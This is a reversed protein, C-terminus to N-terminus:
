NNRLSMIDFDDEMLTKNILIGDFSYLYLDKDIYFYFGQKNYLSTDYVYKDFDIIFKNRYFSYFSKTGDNKEIVAGIVIKDYKMFVLKTYEDKTISLRRSIKNDYDYLYYNGDFILLLNKNEFVDYIICEDSRCDYSTILSSNNIENDLYQYNDNDKYVYKKSKVIYDDKLIIGYTYNDDSIEIGSVKCHSLYISGDDNIYMNCFVDHENYDINDKIDEFIPLKNENSNMYERVADSYANGYKDVVERFSILKKEKDEDGLYKKIVLIYILVVSLIVLGLVIILIKYNKKSTGGM